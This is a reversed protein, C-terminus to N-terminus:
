YAFCFSFLLPCPCLCGSDIVLPSPHETKQLLLVFLPLLPITAAALPSSPFGLASAVPNIPLSAARSAAETAMHAGGRSKSHPPPPRLLFFFSCLSLSAPPTSPHWPPSNGPSPFLGVAPSSCSSSAWTRQQSAGERKKRKQFISIGPESFSFALPKPSSNLILLFLNPVKSKHLIQIFHDPM